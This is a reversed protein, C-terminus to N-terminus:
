FCPFPENYNVAMCAQLEAMCANAEALARNADITRELVNARAEDVGLKNMDGATERSLAMQLFDKASELSEVSTKVVADAEFYRFAADRVQAVVQSSVLDFAMENADCKFRAARVEDVNSWIDLLDAKANIGIENWHKDYVLRDEIRTFRFFGTIQPIYRLLTRKVDNASKLYHLVARYSEPRNQLGTREMDWVALHGMEAPIKPSGLTGALRFGGDVTYNPSCGAKTGLTNRQRETETKVRTLTLRARVMKQHADNLAELGILRKQYLDKVKQFVDSRVSVAKMAASASEQCGLLRFYAADVCGILEQARKVRDYHAVMADKCANDRLLYVQAAENPSWNAEAAYRRLDKGRLLEFAGSSTGATGNWVSPQGYFWRPAETSGLETSLILHPMLRKRLGRAASVRSLEEMTAIKMDPNHALAMSRCDDLTLAQKGTVVTAPKVRTNIVSCSAKYQTLKVHDVSALPNGITFPALYSCQCSCLCGLAPLFGFLILARNIRNFSV